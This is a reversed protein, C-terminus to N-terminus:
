DPDAQAFITRLASKLAVMQGAGLQRALDDEVEGKVADIAVLARRGAKTFEVRRGRRDEADAVRVVIGDAELGDLHQQVAQKTVGARRVLESQAIGTAPIHQILRGRAEAFWPHGAAVVGDIFATEWARAARVLDWGIHDPYSRGAGV